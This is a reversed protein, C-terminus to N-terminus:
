SVRRGCRIRDEREHRWGGGREIRVRERRERERERGIRDERNGIGGGKRLRRIGRAQEWVGRCRGCQRAMLIYGGRDRRGGREGLYRGEGMIIVRKGRRGRGDGRWM